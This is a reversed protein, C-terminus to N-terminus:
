RKKNAKRRDDGVRRFEDHDRHASVLSLPHAGIGLSETLFRAFPSALWYLAEFRQREDEGQIDVIAQTLIDAALRALNAHPVDPSINIGMQEGLDPASYVGQVQAM